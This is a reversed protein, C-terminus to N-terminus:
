DGLQRLRTKLIILRMSTRTNRPKRRLDGKGVAAAFREAATREVSINFFLYSVRSASALCEEAAITARCYLHARKGRGVALAVKENLLKGANLPGPPWMQWW